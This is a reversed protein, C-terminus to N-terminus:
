EPEFQYDRSEHFPDDDQARKLHVPLLHTLTGWLM